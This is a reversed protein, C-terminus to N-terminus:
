DRDVRRARRARARRRVFRAVRERLEDVSNALLQAVLQEERAGVIEARVGLQKRSVDDVELVREIAAIELRCFRQVSTWKEVAEVGAVCRLELAPGLFLTCAQCPTASDASSVSARPAVRAPTPPRRPSTTADGRPARGARRM